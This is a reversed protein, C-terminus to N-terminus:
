FNKSHGTRNGGDLRGSQRQISSIEFVLSSSHVGTFIFYYTIIFEPFSNKGRFIRLQVIQLGEYSRKVPISFSFTGAPM